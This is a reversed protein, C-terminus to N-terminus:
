RTAAATRRRGPEHTAASVMPTSDAGSPKSSADIIRAALACIFSAFDAPQPAEESNACKRVADMLEVADGATLTSGALARKVKDVVPSPRPAELFMIRQWEVAVAHCSAASVKGDNVYSANVDLALKRLELAQEPTPAIPNESLQLLVAEVIKETLFVGSEDGQYEVHACLAAALMQYPIKIKKEV